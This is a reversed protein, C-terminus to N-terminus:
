TGLIALLGSVGALKGSVPALQRLFFLFSFRAVGWVDDIPSTPARKRAGLGGGGGRPRSAKRDALVHDSKEGVQIQLVLHALQKGIPMDRNRAWNRDMRALTAMTTGEVCALRAQDTARTTQQSHHCWAHMPHPAVAGEEM